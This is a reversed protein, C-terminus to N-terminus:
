LSKCSKKHNKQAECAEPLTKYFGVHTVSSSSRRKPYKRKRKTCRSNPCTLQYGNGQKNIYKPTNGTKKGESLNLRKKEDNQVSHGLNWAAQTLGCITDDGMKARFQIWELGYMINLMVKAKGAKYDKGLKVPCVCFHQPNRRKFEKDSIRKSSEPPEIEDAWIEEVIEDTDQSNFRVLEKKEDLGYKGGKKLICEWEYRGPPFDWKIWLNISSIQESMVNPNKGYYVAGTVVAQSGESQFSVMTSNDRLERLMHDRLFLNTALGGTFLIRITEPRGELSIGPIARLKKLQEKVRKQIKSLLPKFIRSRSDNRFKIMQQEENYLMFTSAEPTEPPVLTNPLRLHPRVGKKLEEVDQILAMYEERKKPDGLEGFKEEGVMLKITSLIKDNISSAGLSNDGVAEMLEAFENKGLKRLAAFDTTRAGVDVILLIEGKIGESKLPSIAAAKPENLIMVQEKQLGAKEAVELMFRRAKIPWCAPYTLVWKTDKSKATNSFGPDVSNKLKDVIVTIIGAYVDSARKQTSKKNLSKIMDQTSKKNLSKIMDDMAEGPRRTSKYVSKKPQDFLHYRCKKTTDCIQGSFKRLADEGLDCFLERETDYLVCARVQYHGTADLDTFNGFHSQGRQWVKVAIKSSGIDIGIVPDDVPDDDSGAPRSM